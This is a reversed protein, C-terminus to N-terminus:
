HLAFIPLPLASLASSNLEKGRNYVWATLVCLSPLIPRLSRLLTSRACTSWGCCRCTGRKPSSLAAVTRWPSNYLPLTRCACLLLILEHSTAYPLQVARVTQLVVTSEAIEEASAGALVDGVRSTWMLKGGHELDGDSTAVLNSTGEHGKSDHHVASWRPRLQAYRFHGWQRPLSSPTPPPFSGVLGREPHWFTISELGAVLCFEGLVEVYRIIPDYHDGPTWLPSIDIADMRAASLDYRYLRHDGASAGLHYPWRLKTANTAGPSDIVAFPTYGPRAPIHHESRRTYTNIIDASLSSDPLTIDDRRWCLFRDGQESIMQTFYGNSNPRPTNAFVRISSLSRAPFSM